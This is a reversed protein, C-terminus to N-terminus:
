WNKCMLAFYDIPHACAPCIKPASEGEHIYGCNLCRWTTVAPRSFVRDMKINEALERFRLEHYQEAVIVARFCAAIEPFGEEDATKAFAPYMDSAEHHEGKASEELNELTTRIMGAPFAAQIELDGGELFKFFREGHEKEQNATEEFIQSIQVYGEKKAKSAYFTYRNRAQAEGAFSILLNKETQTGKLSKTM